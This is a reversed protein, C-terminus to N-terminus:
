IKVWEKPLQTRQVGDAYWQIPAVIVKAPNPNLWAAWWSFSSNAIILDKCSALLNFDEIEDGKPMVQINDGKFRERCFEPDDSFILFKDGPFMAMAKEYYDTESLNVYYPNEGYKPETPNIPNAARRVHVGVQSLYGIGEGFLRRIEDEYGEFYKPDQLYWNPINGKRIQAYLYAIQFLRNGLRGTLINPNIM